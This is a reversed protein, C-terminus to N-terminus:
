FRYFVKSWKTLALRQRSLAQSTEFPIALRVICTPLRPQPSQQLRPQVLVVGVKKSEHYPALEQELEKLADLSSRTMTRWAARGSNYQDCGERAIKRVRQTHEEKGWWSDRERTYAAWSHNRLSKFENEWYLETELDKEDIEARDGADRCDKEQERNSDREAEHQNIEDQHSPRWRRKNRIKAADSEAKDGREKANEEEKRWHEKEKKADDLGKKLEERYVNPDIAHKSQQLSRRLEGQQAFSSFIKHSNHQLETNVLRFTNENIDMRKEYRSHLTRQVPSSACDMAGDPVHFFKAALRMFYCLRTVKHRFRMAKMHRDAYLEALRKLKENRNSCKRDYEKYQKINARLKDGNERLSRELDEVAFATANIGAANSVYNRLHAELSLFHPSTRARDVAASMTKRDLEQRREVFRAENGEAQLQNELHLYEKAAALAFPVVQEKFFARRTNPSDKLDESLQKTDALLAKLGVQLKEAKLEKTEAEVGDDIVSVLVTCSEDSLPLKALESVLEHDNLEVLRDVFEPLDDLSRESLAAGLVNEIFATNKLWNKGEERGKLWLIGALQGVDHCAEDGPGASSGEELSCLVNRGIEAFGLNKQEDDAVKSLMSICLPKSKTLDEWSKETISKFNKLRHGGKAVQFYEAERNFFIRSVKDNTTVLNFVHDAKIIKQGNFTVRFIERKCRWIYTAFLAGASHGVFAEIQGYKKEWATLKKTMKRSTIPPPSISQNVIDQLWNLPKYTGRFGVILKGAKNKYLDMRWGNVELSDLFVAPVGQQKFYNAPKEEYPAQAMHYFLGPNGIRSLDDFKM